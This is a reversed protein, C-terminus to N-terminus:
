SDERIALCPDLKRCRPSPCQSEVTRQDPFMMDSHTEGCRTCRVKKRVRQYKNM